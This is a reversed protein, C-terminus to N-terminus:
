NIFGNFRLNKCDEDVGKTECVEMNIGVGDHIAAWLAALAQIQVPYFDLHPGVPKGNVESVVVPREGFGRKKYWSQYKPYYANAIEIGIAKHNVKRSSAHWAAHNTDLLQYITGDNDICFHVSINRKNLIDNYSFETESKHFSKKIKEADYLTLNFIKSIDKTINFSGIPITQIFKLKNKEFSILSTRKLGIELFSAKDINLKEFYSLSKIYSTCYFKTVNINIKSFKSKIDDIIKKPFCLLKFNIKINNIESKHKPIEEHFNNDIFCSDVLTHVIYFKDYSSNILQKLELFLSDYIKIFKNKGDLNKNLSVDITLLEPTDLTIIIDKIHNSIKKESNKIIGEIADFHNSYDNELVLIKSNSYKENLNNDFVSFRIKSNGYDLINFFDQKIM